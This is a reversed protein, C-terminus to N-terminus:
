NLHRPQVQVDVRTMITDAGASQELAALAGTALAADHYSHPWKAEARIAAIFTEIERRYTEELVEKMAGLGLVDVIKAGPL